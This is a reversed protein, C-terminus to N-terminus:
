GLGVGVDLWTRAARGRRRPPTPPAAVSRARSCWRRSCPRRPPSVRARERVEVGVKVKVRVM